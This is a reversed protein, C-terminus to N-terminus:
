INVIWKEYVKKTKRWSPFGSETDMIDIVGKLKTYYRTMIYRMNDHIIKKNVMNMLYYTSVDEFYNMIRKTAMKIEKSEKSSIAKENSLDIPTIENGYIGDYNEITSKEHAYKDHWDGLLHYTFEAKRWRYEFYSQVLRYILTSLIGFLSIIIGIGIGKSDQCTSLNLSILFLIHDLVLATM